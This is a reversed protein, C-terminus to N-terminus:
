KNKYREKYKKYLEMQSNTLAVFQGNVFALVIDNTRMDLANGASIFFTANKGEEVSGYQNAIGMIECSNLSVAQIAQEETLGYSMATGALFPINRVNSTELDGQNQICFKVGGAQLLYPLKYPLDIPDNENEPLSHPRILMVPIGADKLKQTALYSDYGGIIVPFLIGVKKSFDIIDLIQQLHNAHIYVRKTGQFCNKMSEFRLDVSEIKDSQYAKASEFFRYIERKQETYMENKKGRNELFSPWNLHIGDDVKATADEWNWGETYMISSTGSVIGGRPTAQVLLVGNTKATAVVNSEINYAIQSRIHPNYVGVERFDNTARVEDIETLGLTSNPAVFAPYIYQGKANIITDWDSVSYTYALANKVLVIKGNKIGVLSKEITQGNGVHLFGNEILISNYKKQSFSVFTFLVFFYCIINKM